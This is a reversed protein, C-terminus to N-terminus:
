NSYNKIRNYSSSRYRDNSFLCDTGHTQTQVFDTINQTTAEVQSQDQIVIEISIKSVTQDVTDIRHFKKYVEKIQLDKVISIETYIITGISIITILFYNKQVNTVTFTKTQYTKATKM